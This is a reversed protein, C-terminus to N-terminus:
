LGGGTYTFNTQAVPAGNVILEVEHKGAYHKRTSLSKFSHTKSISIKDGCEPNKITLKFTKPALKGNSKMFHIRYDIMLKQSKDSLFLFHFSLNGEGPVRKSKLKLKVRSIKPSLYGLLALAKKDGQKFLTRLAHRVIWRREISAGRLWRKLTEIVIEPNDRSIDNLNNAVSRRVYLEEDDKLSELLALVPKPNKQFRRLRATLPLRPRTCESVLRRVHPNKDATWKEFLAFSKEPYKKIFSRIAWESSSRKTMEYLTKMSLSFHDIGADAIFETLPIVIFSDWDTKGPELGLAPELSDILIHASRKFDKPLYKKLADRILREREGFGLTELKAEITHCFGSEDFAPYKIKIRKALHSVVRMNYIYRLKNEASLGAM